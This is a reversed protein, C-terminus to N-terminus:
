NIELRFMILWRSKARHARRNVTGSYSGLRASARGTMYRADDLMLVADELLGGHGWGVCAGLDLACSVGPCFIAKSAKIEARDSWACMFGELSFLSFPSLFCVSPFLLAPLTCWIRCGWHMHLVLRHPLVNFTIFTFTSSVHCHPIDKFHLVLKRINVILKHVSVSLLRRGWCLLLTLLSYIFASSLYVCAGDIRWYEYKLFGLNVNM